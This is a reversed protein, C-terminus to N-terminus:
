AQTANLLTVGFDPQLALASGFIEQQGEATTLLRQVEAARQEPALSQWSTSTAGSALTQLIRAVVASVIPTAFSTGSWFAWGYPNPAPYDPLAPAHVEPAPYTASTYVGKLADLNYGNQVEELTLAAGGYAAVGNHLMEAQPSNSYLAPKGQRDVAAVSIVEPFAAPYHPGIRKPVTPSNSDNGAAAVVVAGHAVLNQVVLHLASRLL